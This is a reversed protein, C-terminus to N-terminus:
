GVHPEPNMIQGHAIFLSKQAPGHRPSNTPPTEDDVTRANHHKSAIVSNGFVEIAPVGCGRDQRM